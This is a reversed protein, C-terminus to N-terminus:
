MMEGEYCWPSISRLPTLCKGSVSFTTLLSALLSALLFLTSSFIGPFIHL